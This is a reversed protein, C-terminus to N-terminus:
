KVIFPLQEINDVWHREFGLSEYVKDREQDDKLVPGPRSKRQGKSADAPIEDWPHWFDILYAIDKGDVRRSGRGPIQSAIIESGGGGPCILVALDPFNVGQKYVYTSLIKRIKGCKFDDYLQKREKASIGVLNRQGQEQLLKDSTKAHVYRIGDILPVIENMQATQPMICLTQLETPIAKLLDVVLQNQVKGKIVAQNYKGRRTKYNNYRQMGLAPEPCNIWYVVIPVLAGVAVGDQYTSRYVVPGVMGETLLDGGDFRGTPTASAGYVIARRAKLIQESRSPTAATHVEDIILLGIDDANIRKLSDLTIVQVDDSVDDVGGMVLGVDRTPLAKVLTDYNQRAIDQEACTVVTLPTNRACLDEHSYARIIGGIIHTNHTVTFDGLLYRHNGDLRVGVYPGDAIREVTFSTRLAHKKQRRVSAQKHRVRTPILHTDGTICVRYADITVGFGTCQRETQHVRFGLSRAVFAVDDVLKASTNVFDFDTGATLSGDSDMLGALLKLRIERSNVKFAHPIFKTRSKLLGYTRMNRRLTNVQGAQKVIAYRPTRDDHDYIALALGLSAAYERIANLVEPEENTIVTNNWSGDGLWLGLWYPDVTVPTEAWDVAVKYLKHRHKFTKSQKFYDEVTICVIHGDPYKDGKCDGSKTLCLIHHDAVEFPVGNKPTIRYMPGTGDIRDLVTRPKSDDGLLVDGVKVAGMKRITGDAYIVPTSPNLCKGYGTPCAIVGGGSMLMTYACEWQYDRLGQLAAHIDPVPHPTREDIVVFEEGLETLTSKVRHMFGPMTLLCQMVKQDDTVQMDITHLYRYEGAVVQRGAAPDYEMSRHWYRLKKTLEDPIRPMFVRLYGDGWHIRAAM